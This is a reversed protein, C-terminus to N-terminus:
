YQIVSPVQISTGRNYENNNDLHPQGVMHSYRPMQDLQILKENRRSLDSDELSKRPLVTRDYSDKHIRNHKIEPQIIQTEHKFNHKSSIL